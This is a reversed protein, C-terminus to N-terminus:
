YNSCDGMLQISMLVEACGSQVNALAAAHCISIPGGDPLAGCCEALRACCNTGTCLCGHSACSTQMDSSTGSSSASGGGDQQATQVGGGCAVLVLGVAVFVGATARAGGMAMAKLNKMM